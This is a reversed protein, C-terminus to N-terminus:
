FVTEVVLMTEVVHVLVFPEVVTIGCIIVFTLKTMSSSYHAHM